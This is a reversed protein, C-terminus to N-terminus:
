AAGGYRQRLDTVDFSKAQPKSERGKGNRRDRAEHVAETFYSWSRVSAPPRRAGTAKLTPLIDLKLDCGNSLWSLPDSVMELQPSTRHLCDGAAKVLQGQLETADIDDTSQDEPPKTVVVEPKQSRAEPNPQHGKESLSNNKNSTTKNEDRKFHSKAANESLKKHEIEEKIVQKEFRSNSITGDRVIIKGDEVLKAKIQNFRRTSCGCVRGLEQADDVIPKGADYMLDLLVAYVGKEEATLRYTGSVFDSPYRKYWPRSSM